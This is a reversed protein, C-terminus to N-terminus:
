LLMCGKGRGWRVCRCLLGAEVVCAQTLLSGDVGAKSGTRRYMCAPGDRGGVDRVQVSAWGEFESMCLEVKGNPLYNTCLARLVAPDARKKEPSGIILGHVRLGLKEKAGSLKQM